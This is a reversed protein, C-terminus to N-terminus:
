EDSPIRRARSAIEALLETLSDGTEVEVSQTPTGELRNGFEKIANIDGKMAMAFTQRALARLKTMQEAGSYAEYEENAVIRLADTWPKSKPRGSPM